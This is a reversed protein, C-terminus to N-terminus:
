GNFSHTHGLGHTFLEWFGYDIRYLWSGIALAYLRWAWAWHQTFCGAVAHQYTKFAAVVILIGYLAFGQSM